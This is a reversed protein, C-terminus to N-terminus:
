DHLARRYARRALLLGVTALLTLYTLHLAARGPELGGLAFGRCLEVGHWLPLPYVFPRIAAPLEDVAVFTGSFLYTPMIVFRFVNFFTERNRITVGLAMGPTAFALGTLVAAPLTLLVLPTRAVGFLLMVLLVAAASTAVRFVIFLLHGALVDAPDLPTCAAARYNRRDRLSLFSGAASEITATQMAAAALLGPALFTLYPAGHLSASASTDVLRGLGVGIGVFFLLPNAINMVISSRWTRRYHLLWFAVEGRVLPWRRLPPLTTTM